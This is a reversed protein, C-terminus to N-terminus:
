SGFTSYINSSCVSSEWYVHKRTGCKQLGMETKEDKIKTQKAIHRINATLKEECATFILPL